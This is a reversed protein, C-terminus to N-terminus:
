QVVWTSFYVETIKGNPILANVRRLIDQALRNQGDATKLEADTFQHMSKNVADQLIPLLDTMESKTQKDAAQLHATYQILGDKTNTTNEPLDVLLDRVESATQSHPASPKTASKYYFYGGVALSVLLAMGGIIYLM